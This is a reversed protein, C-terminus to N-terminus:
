GRTRSRRTWDLTWQPPPLSGGTRSVTLAARVSGGAAPFTARLRTRHGAGAMARWITRDVESESVYQPEGSTTSFLWVTVAAAMGPRPRSELEATALERVRRRLGGEAGWWEHRLSMALGPSGRRWQAWVGHRLADAAPAEVAFRRAGRREEFGMAISEHQAMDATVELAGRHGTLGGPFRWLSGELSATLRDRPTGRLAAGLAAAPPPVRPRQVGRFEFHGL